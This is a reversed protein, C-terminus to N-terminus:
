DTYTDSSKRPAESYCILYDSIDRCVACTDSVLELFLSEELFENLVLTVTIIAFKVLIVTVNLNVDHMYIFTCSKIIDACIFLSFRLLADRKQDSYKHITLYINNQEAFGLPLMQKSTFYAYAAKQSQM